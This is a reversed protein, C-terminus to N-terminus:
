PRPILIRLPSDNTDIEIPTDQGSNYPFPVVPLQQDKNDVSVVFVKHKGRILGDGYVAVGTVKKTTTSTM